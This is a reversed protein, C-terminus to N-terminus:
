AIRNQASPSNSSQAYLGEEGFERLVGAVHTICDADGMSRFHQGCCGGCLM